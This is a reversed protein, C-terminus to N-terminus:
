LGGEEADQGGSNEQAAAQRGLGDAERGNGHGCGFYADLCGRNARALIEACDQGHGSGSFDVRLDGGAGQGLYVFGHGFQAVAFNGAANDESRELREAYGGWGFVARGWRAAGGDLITIYRM